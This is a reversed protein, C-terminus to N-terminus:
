TECFSLKSLRAVVNISRVIDERLLESDKGVDDYSGDLGDILFKDVDVEFRIMTLNREESKFYVLTYTGDWDIFKYIYLRVKDYFARM